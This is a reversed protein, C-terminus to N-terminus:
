TAGRLTPAIPRRGAGRAVVAALGMLGILTGAVIAPLSRVAFVTGIDISNSAEFSGIIGRTGFYGALLGVAIGVAGLPLLERAILGRVIRRRGGIAQVAAFEHRREYLNVSMTSVVALAAVAAVIAAISAFILVFSARADEGQQALQGMTQTAFPVSTHLTPMEDGSLVLNYGGPSGLAAGLVAGDLYVARGHDDVTGVVRYRVAGSPLGVEVTDGVGINTRKAFGASVVVEPEGATGLWAGARMPASFMATDPSLGFIDLDLGNVQGDVRIALEQGATGRIVTSDFPLGNPGATTMSGWHWPARAADNFNNVSTTLSTIVLLAGVGAAIQAVVAVARTRRHASSRLAVRTLLGGTPVRSLWRDSFRRGFPAGERDRMAEALPLKTVRRAARASVLRAGFMAAAATGVVVPISFGFKPTIGVFERLVLRAIVNAIVVGLPLGIVLAAATIGLALRRLRRRLPRAGSGLARMIATDRSRETILTNTTSALLVLAVIGAVIGLLGILTSIQQIDDEIPTREGPLFFPFSTFTDGNKAIEARVDDAIRHLSRSTDVKAVIAVRDPGDSGSIALASRMTTYLTETGGFWLTEGHGVVHLTTVGVSVIDGIDHFGPSALAEDDAAPLRGDVVHLRDIQQDVLQMGVVAVDGGDVDVISSTSSEVREVGRIAALSGLQQPDLATTSVVLDALGDRTAVDRLPQRAVSPIAMVGVAGIALSLAFISAIIRAPARRFQRWAPRM